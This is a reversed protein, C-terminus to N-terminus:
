KQIYKKGDKVVVGKYAKNVRQGALNYIASAKSSADEIAVSNIATTEGGESISFGLAKASTAEGVPEFSARTGSINTQADGAKFFKNKANIFFNGVPVTTKVYTGVFNFADSTQTPTADKVEVGTFTYGEAKAQAGYIFVPTNATISSAETFKLTYSNDANQTAGSYAAVKANAGFEAAVQEATVDFPLVLTNWAEDNFTRKLTVTTIGHGAKVNETTAAEDLTASRDYFKVIYNNKNIEPTKNNYNFLDGKVLVIDGAAVQSIETFKTNGVYLGGYVDISNSTADADTITYNLSGYDSNINKSTVNTVTGKVYVGTGLDAIRDKNIITLADGVTYPNEETGAGTLNLNEEVTITYTASSAAYTDDGAYSATITYKGPVTQDIVVNGNNDKSVDAHESDSSTYTVTAGSIANGEADTVTAVNTYSALETAKADQKITYDGNAFVVKTATKDAEGAVVRKFYAISTTRINANVSTYTRWDSGNYVGIYRKTTSGNSSVDNYLGIYTDKSYPVFDRNDGDGVRVGNNTNTCYLYNKADGNPHFQYKGNDSIVNWKMNDAVDSTLESGDTSLTVSIAAPASKTGNNNTMAKVSNIDVIVVQDTSTLASLETKVWKPKNPDVVEITYSAQAKDYTDNGAYTATITAKGAAKTDVIVEGSEKDVIAINKNDSAYTIAAGEVAPTLTATQTFTTGETANLDFTKDANDGFSLTTKTKGTSESKYTVSLSNVYLRSSKSTGTCTYTVSKEGGTFDLSLTSDKAISQTASATKNKDTVYTVTTGMASGLTVNTLTYGDAVSVTFLGGNQYVRIEENSIAPPTGAKGQEAKYSVNKDGGVNGSTESFSTQTVTTQARLSSGGLLILALLMVLHLTKGMTQLFKINYTKM